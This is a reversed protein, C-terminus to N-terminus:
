RNIITTHVSDESPGWSELQPALVHLLFFPQTDRPPRRPVTHQHCPNVINVTEKEVWMMEIEVRPNRRM